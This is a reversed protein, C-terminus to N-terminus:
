GALCERPPCSSAKAAAELLRRARDSAHFKGSRKGADQALRGRAIRGGQAGTKRPRTAITLDLVAQLSFEIAVLLRPKRFPLPVRAYDATARSEAM